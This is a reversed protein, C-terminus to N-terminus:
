LCTRAGCEPCIGSTNGTLNYGCQACSNPFLLSLSRARSLGIALGILTYLIINTLTILVLGLKHSLGLYRVVVIAPLSPLVIPFCFLGFPMCVSFILGLIGGLMFCM